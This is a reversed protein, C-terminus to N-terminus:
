SHGKKLINAVKEPFYKFRNKHPFFIATLLRKKLSLLKLLGVFFV